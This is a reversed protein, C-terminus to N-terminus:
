LPALCERVILRAFRIIAERDYEDMEDWCGQATLGSEYMLRDLSDILIKEQAAAYGVAGTFRDMNVFNEWM